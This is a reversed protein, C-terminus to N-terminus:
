PYHPAAPATGQPMATAPAATAPAYTPATPSQYSSGSMAYFVAIAIVIIVAIMAAIWRGTHSPAATRRPRSAGIRTDAM